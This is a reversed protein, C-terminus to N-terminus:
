FKLETLKLERINGEKRLKPLELIIASNALNTQIIKHGSVKRAFYTAINNIDLCIESINDVGLM